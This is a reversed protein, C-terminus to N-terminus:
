CCRSLLEGDICYVEPQNHPRAVYGLVSSLQRQVGAELAPHLQWPQQQQVAALQEAVAPESFAPPVWSSCLPKAAHQWFMGVLEAVAAARASVEQVM